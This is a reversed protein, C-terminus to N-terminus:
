ESATTVLDLLTCVPLDARAHVEGLLREFTELMWALRGAPLVGTDAVLEVITHDSSFTRVYIALDFPPLGRATPTRQAIISRGFDVRRDVEDSSFLVSYPARALERPERSSRLAGPVDDIRVHRHEFARFAAETEREVFARFDEQERLTSRFPLTEVFCGVVADYAASPRTSVPVAFTLDRAGSLAAIVLKWVSQMFLFKTTRLGKPPEQIGVDM